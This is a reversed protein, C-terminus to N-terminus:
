FWKIGTVLNANQTEVVLYFHNLTLRMELGKM